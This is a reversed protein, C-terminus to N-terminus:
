ITLISIFNLLSRGHLPPPLDAFLLTPTHAIITTTISYNSSSFIALEQSHPLENKQSPNFDQLKFTSNQIDCCMSKVIPTSSKKEPCCDKLSVFSVKEKGSKLCVMKNITFGLSSLLFISALFISTIKQFNKM